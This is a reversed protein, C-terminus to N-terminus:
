IKRKCASGDRIGQGEAVQQASLESRDDDYSAITPGTRDEVPAAHL